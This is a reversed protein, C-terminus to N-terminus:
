LMKYISTIDGAGMTIIIDYKKHNEKIYKATAKLGNGNRANKSHENIATVLKDTSVKQLDAETDRVKYINPIIVKDTNKFSKAFDKLLVATRSYQHPQFITLIKKKPYKERLAGLTAQIETPHHGYDDILICNYGKKKKHEMRRWTGKFSKLGSDIKNDPLGLIQGVMAASTANERNFEGPVLLERKKVTKKDWLIVTAKASSTIKSNDKNAIVFGDKPVKKILSMFASEYDKLGKYYDLHDAELNTIVLIDPRLSLFSRKYECAEVLLIDSNGVKYNRNKFQKIKTGIIVTPDLGAKQLMIAAMATTTSKGHTGSIAITFYDESLQGLAQPYTLAPIKRKRGKKLEPNSSPIAPSYIILDCKNPINKENHGITVKIDSAILSKTIESGAMDSGSIKKGKANLIQAISSAGIGGIGVIHIFHSKKLNM